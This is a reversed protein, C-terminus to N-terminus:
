FRFQIGVNTPPEKMEWKQLHLDNDIDYDDFVLEVNKQRALAKQLEVRSVKGDRNVDARDFNFEVQARDLGRITGLGSQRHAEQRSIAGDGDGDLRSLIDKSLFAIWEKRSVQGDRNADGDSGSAGAMLPGSCLSVAGFTLVYLIKKMFGLPDTTAGSKLAIPFNL